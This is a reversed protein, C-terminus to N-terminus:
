RKLKRMRFLFVLTFRDVLEGCFNEWWWLSGMLFYKWRPLSLFAGIVELLFLDEGISNFDHQCTPIFNIRKSSTVKITTIVRGYTEKVRWADENIISSNKEIIVNVPPFFRCFSEREIKGRKRM